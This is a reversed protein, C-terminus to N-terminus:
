IGHSAEESLKDAKEMVVDFRGKAYEVKLFSDILSIQDPDTIQLLRALEETQDNM